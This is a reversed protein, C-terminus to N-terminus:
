RVSEIQEKLESLRNKLKSAEIHDDQIELFSLNTLLGKKLM